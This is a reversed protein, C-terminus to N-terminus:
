FFVPILRLVGEQLTAIGQITIWSKSNEVPLCSAPMYNSFEWPLKNLSHPLLGMEM